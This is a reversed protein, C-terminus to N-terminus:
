KKGAADTPICKKTKKNQNNNFRSCNTKNEQEGKQSKHKFNIKSVATLKVLYSM